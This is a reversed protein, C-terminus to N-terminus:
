TRSNVCYFPDRSEHDLYGNYFLKISGEARRALERRRQEDSTLPKSLNAALEALVADKDIRTFRGDRLIVEGDVIVTKVARAKGRQLIADIVATGHDLYPFAIDRWDMVILDARKGPVITGIECGFPTTAAGHETAMRFVQPATPIDDDM